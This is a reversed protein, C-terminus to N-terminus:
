NINQNRDNNINNAALGFTGSLNVLGNGNQEPSSTNIGSGVSM